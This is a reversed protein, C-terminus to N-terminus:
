ILHGDHLNQVRSRLVCRQGLDFGWYTQHELRGPKRAWAAWAPGRTRIFHNRLMLQRANLQDVSPINRRAPQDHLM